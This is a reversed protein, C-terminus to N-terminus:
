EGYVKRNCKQTHEAKQTGDDDPGNAHFADLCKRYSVENRESTKAAKVRRERTKEAKAREEAARQERYTREDNVVKEREEKDVRVRAM